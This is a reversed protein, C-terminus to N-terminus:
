PDAPVPFRKPSPKMRQWHRIPQRATRQDALPSVHSRSLGELTDRERLLHLNPQPRENACETFGLRRLAEIHVLRHYRAGGRTERQAARRCSGDIEPEVHQRAIRRLFSSDG